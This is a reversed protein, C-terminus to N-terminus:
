GEAIVRDFVKREDETLYARFWKSPYENPYTDGVHDHIPQSVDKDFFIITEVRARRCSTGCPVFHHLHVEIVDFEEDAFMMERKRSEVLAFALSTPFDKVCHVVGQEESEILWANSISGRAGLNIRTILVEPKPLRAVVVPNIPDHDFKEFTWSHGTEFTSKCDDTVTYDSLLHTEAKTVSSFISIVLVLSILYFKNMNFLPVGYNLM